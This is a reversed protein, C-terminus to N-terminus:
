PFIQTQTSQPIIGPVLIEFDNKFPANGLGNVNIVLSQPVEIQVVKGSEGAYFAARSPDTTWSGFPSHSSYYYEDRFSEIPAGTNLRQQIVETPNLKAQIKCTPCVDGINPNPLGKYVTIVSEGNQPTLNLVGNPNLAEIIRDQSLLKGNPYGGPLPATQSQQIWPMNYNSPAGDLGEISDLAANIEGSLQRVDLATGTAGLATTVGFLLCTGNVGYKTCYTATNIAGLGADGINAVM